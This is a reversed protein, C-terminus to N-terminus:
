EGLDTLFGSSQAVVGNEWDGFAILEGRPDFDVASAYRSAFRGIESLDNAARISFCAKEGVVLFRADPSWALPWGTGGQVLPVPACTLGGTSLDILELRHDKAGVRIAALSGDPSPAVGRLFRRTGPVERFGGRPDRSHLLRDSSNTGDPHGHKKGAVMLWDDASRARVLSTLMVHDEQWLVEEADDRVARLSLSGRWTADLVASDSQFAIPGGEGRGPLVSVPDGTEVVLTHITGDTSKVAVYAQSPAFAASSAHDILNSEWVMQGAVADWLRLVSGLALLLRGDPSFVVSNSERIRLM